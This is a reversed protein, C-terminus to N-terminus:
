ISSRIRDSKAARPMWGHQLDRDCRHQDGGREGKGHLLVHRAARQRQEREAHGVSHERHEGDEIQPAFSREAVLKARAGAVKREAASTVTISKKPAM